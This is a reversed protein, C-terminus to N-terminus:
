RESQGANPADGSPRHGLSAVAKVQGWFQLLLGPQAPVSLRPNRERPALDLHFEDTLQILEHTDLRFRYINWSGFHQGAFLISKGDAGFSVSTVGPIKPLPVEERKKVKSRGIPDLTVIIAFSHRVDGHISGKYLVQKGDPSWGGLYMGAEPRPESVMWMDTGDPRIAYIQRGQDVIGEFLIWEGDPSWRPRSAFGLDTVRKVNGGDTDMVYIETKPWQRKDEPSERDSTFAIQNGDPAWAPYRDGKPHFTLQRLNKGDVDIVWINRDPALQSGRDSHFAIQRGNPSLAPWVASAPDETVRTPNTGDANMIYVEHGGLRGSYWVIQGNLPSTALWFCAVLVLRYIRM